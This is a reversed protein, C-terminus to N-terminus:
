GWFARIHVIADHDIKLCEGVHYTHFRESIPPVLNAAYGTYKRGLDAAESTQSVSAHMELKEHGNEPRYRLIRSEDCKQLLKHCCFKCVEKKGRLAYAYARYAFYRV